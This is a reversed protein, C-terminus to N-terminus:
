DGRRVALRRDVRHGLWLVIALRFALATWPKFYDGPADDSQDSLYRGLYASVIAFLVVCREAYSWRRLHLLDFAPTMVLGALIALGVALGLYTNAAGDPSAKTEQTRGAARVATRSGHWLTVQVREGIHLRSFVPEDSTLVITGRVPRPGSLDIYWLQSRSAGAHTRAVVADVTARCDGDPPRATACPTASRYADATSRGHWYPVVLAVAALLAM